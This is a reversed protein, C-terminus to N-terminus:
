FLYILLYIFDLLLLNGVYNYETVIMMYPQDSVRRYALYEAPSKSRTLENAVIQPPAPNKKIHTIMPLTYEGRLAKVSPLCLLGSAQGLSSFWCEQALSIRCTSLKRPLLTPPPRPSWCAPSSRQASHCPSRSSAQTGLDTQCSILVESCQQCEGSPTCRAVLLSAQSITM